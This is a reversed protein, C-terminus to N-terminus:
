QGSSKQRVYLELDDEDFVRTFESSARVKAEIEELGENLGTEQWSPPMNDDLVVYDQELDLHGIESVEYPVQYYGRVQQDPTTLILMYSPLIASANEPIQDMISHAAESNYRPQFWGTNFWSYALVSTSFLTVLVLPVALSIEWRRRALRELNALGLIFAPFLAAAIALINFTSLGVRPRVLTEALAPIGLIVTASFLPAGFGLSQWLGYWTGLHRATSFAIKLPVWPKFFVTTLIERSNSGLNSYAQVARVSSTASFHPIFWFLAFKEIQLLELISIFQREETLPRECCEELGPILNRQM